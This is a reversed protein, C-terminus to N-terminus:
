RSFAVFAEKLFKLARFMHTKVTNVSIHLIGAIEQYTLGEDRNMRFIVKTQPPLRDILYAIHSNTEKYLLEKEPTYGSSLPLEDFSDRLSVPEIRHKRAYDITKNRVSTYLYAKLSGKLVIKHRSIWLYEFVDAVIDRAEEGSGPIMVRVFRVLNSYHKTFLAEFANEDNNQLASFYAQESDPM